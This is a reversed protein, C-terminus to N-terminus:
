MIITFVSYQPTVGRSTLLFSDKYVRMRDCGAHQIGNILARNKCVERPTAMTVHEFYLWVLFTWTMAIDNGFITSKYVPSNHFITIWRASAYWSPDLPERQIRRWQATCRLMCTYWSIRIATLDIYCVHIDRYAYRLSILIADYALWSVKRAIYYTHGFITTFRGM